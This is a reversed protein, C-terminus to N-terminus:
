IVRSLVRGLQRTAIASNKGLRLLAPIKQPSKLIALTLKVPNLNKGGTWLLNMDLPLEDNAADSIARVTACAIQQQACAEQICASEMEVADAKTRERLAAKEAATIAVRTECTIARAKAGARRLKGAIEEDRTQFVIDGIRLTPDLGGAIGCTFVRAPREANLASEIARETNRRGMGTVLVRVDTRNRILKRFPKAEAEFAFCVLVPASM